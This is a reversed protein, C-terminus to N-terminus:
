RGTSAHWTGGMYGRAASGPLTLLVAPRIVCFFIETLAHSIGVINPHNRLTGHALARLELTFNGLATTEDSPRHKQDDSQPLTDTRPQKVAVLKTENQSANRNKWLNETVIMTQGSGLRSGQSLSLDSSPIVRIYSAQIFNLFSVWTFVLDQDHLTKDNRSNDSILLEDPIIDSDATSM